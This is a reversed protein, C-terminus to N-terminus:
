AACAALRGRAGFLRSMVSGAPVGLARAADREDLGALDVAALVERDGAPLAAIAGYVDDGRTASPARRRAGAVLAGILTGLDDRISARAYAERVLEEADPRSGALALAAGYLRDLEDRGRPRVAASRAPALKAGARGRGRVARRGHAAADEQIPAAPL